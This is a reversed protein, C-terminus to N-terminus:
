KYAKLMGEIAALQKKLVSVDVIQNELRKKEAALQDKSFAGATARARKAARKQPAPFKHGCDCERKRVGVFKKCKPCERKGQKGKAAKKPAAKKKRTAPKKKATAM